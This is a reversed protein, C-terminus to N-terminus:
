AAAVDLKGIGERPEDPSRFRQMIGALSTVGLRSLLAM